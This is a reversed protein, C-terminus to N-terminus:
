PVRAPPRPPTPQAPPGSRTPRPGCGHTTTRAMCDLLVLGGASSAPLSRTTAPEALFRAFTAADLSMDSRALACTCRLFKSGTSTMPAAPTGPSADGRLGHSQGDARSPPDPRVPALRGYHAPAGGQRGDLRRVPGARATQGAGSDPSHEPREARGGRARRGRRVWRTTAQKAPTARSAGATRSRSGTASRRHRRREALYTRPSPQRMLVDERPEYPLHSPAGFDVGAASSGPPPRAYVGAGGAPQSM